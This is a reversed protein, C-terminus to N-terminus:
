CHTDDWGSDGSVKVLQFGSDCSYVGGKSLNTAVVNTFYAKGTLSNVLIAYTASNINVNSIYMNSIFTGWFTIGEFPSDFINIDSINVLSNMADEQPWLWIAGSEASNFRNPSGCRVIVNRKMVTGSTPISNFRNSAQLGSGECITDALYNDTASNDIGGYIAICNALVPNQITNFQFVNRTNPNPNSRDSWMALGDDGTNRIMSQEIIVNTIGMHLNIGDAFTNAIKVGTIHTGSFPGDFWMGCKTHEIWINQIIGNTIAGGSGSDIASDDRVNTAGFMAFDYLQVNISPNPAWNGFFGIGHNVTAFIISYWPGAGRVIINSNLTFRHTVAFIGIPIWVNKGQSQAATIAKQIAGTSDTTGTPDAGYSTISLYGSSPESYPAPIDIYFDVLDITYVLHSTLGILSIQTGPSLSTPFMGRVEDYFHHPDGDNPHKTFPYAGYIWSFHSNVTLNLQLKQNVFVGLNGWLGNGDASDPISYRVVIGNCSSNLTFTVYQNGTIQVAKRGSAESPLSMYTVNPGIIVGNTKADEAEMEIYPLTAGTVAIAIAGSIEIYDLSIVEGEEKQIVLTNIGKRLPISSSYNKTSPVLTVEEMKYGNSSIQVNCLGNSKYRLSIPYEGDNPINVTFIIRDGTSQLDVFSQSVHEGYNLIVHGSEAEYRISNVINLLLCIFIFIIRNM